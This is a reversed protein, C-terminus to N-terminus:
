KAGEHLRGHCRWGWLLQLLPSGESQLNKLSWPGRGGGGRGERWWVSDAMLRGLQAASARGEAPKCGDVSVACAGDSCHLQLAGQRQAAQLERQHGTCLDTCAGPRAKAERRQPPRLPAHGGGAQAGHQGASTGGARGLWCRGCRTQHPALSAAASPQTRAMGHMCHCSSQNTTRANIAFSFHLLGPAGAVTAAGGGGGWNAVSCLWSVSIRVAKAAAARPASAM